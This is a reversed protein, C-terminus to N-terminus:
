TDRRLRACSDVCFHSSSIQVGIHLLSFWVSNIQGVPLNHEIDGYASINHLAAFLHGVNSPLWGGQSIRVLAIVPLIEFIFIREEASRQRNEKKNKVDTSYVKVTM